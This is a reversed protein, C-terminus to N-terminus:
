WGIVARAGSCLDIIGHTQLTTIAHNGHSFPQQAFIAPANLLALLGLITFAVYARKQTNFRNASCKLTLSRRKNLPMM